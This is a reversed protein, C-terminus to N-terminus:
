LKYVKVKEHKRSEVKLKEFCEDSCVCPEVPKGMCGCEFGNCCLQPKYGIVIKGCIDCTYEIKNSM